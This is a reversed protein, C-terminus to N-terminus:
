AVRRHLWTMAGAMGREVALSCLDGGPGLWPPLQEVVAGRAGATLLRDGLREAWPEEGIDFILHFRRGPALWELWGDPWAEVGGTTTYACVGAARGVCADRLGVVLVISSGIGPLGMRDPWLWHGRGRLGAYRKEEALFRRVMNVPKGDQYIPFGLAAGHGDNWAMRPVLMLGFERVVGGGGVLPWLHEARLLARHWADWEATRLPAPACADDVEYKDDWVSVAGFDGKLRVEM